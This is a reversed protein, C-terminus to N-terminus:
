FIRVAGDRVMLPRDGTVDVITSPFGGPTVGCDIVLDLSDGLDELVAAATRAPLQGSLNASTATIPFACARALSLAFSPGPIRVAVKSEYVLYPSLEKRAEFLLTLPGPWFKSMLDRALDTVSEAVLSLLEPRGLILPLAKEDPRKKLEYVRRIARTVDYKAGLGYYTETPYAIIGGSELIEKARAVTEEGNQEVQLQM